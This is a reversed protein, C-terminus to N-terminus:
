DLILFYLSAIIITLTDLTLCYNCFDGIIFAQIFILYLSALAGTIIALRLVFRLQNKYTFLITREKKKSIWFLCILLITLLSFGFIGYIPLGVGFLVAFDSIQVQYCGNNQAFCGEESNSDNFKKQFEIEFSYALNIISLLILFLILKEKKKM